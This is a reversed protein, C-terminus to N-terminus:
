LAEKLYGENLYDQVSTAGHRKSLKKRDLGLVLSIHAFEPAQWGLAEYIMLQRLTNPLHEEARIVNSIRMLYDDVVVAYNYVPVGNSRLIVFDGVMGDKFTIEGRVRDTFTYDKRPAKMRISFAEGGGARQESEENSINTCTGDYQPPVGKAKAAEAKRDLEEETCFCRYAHATKLLLLAIPKYIDERESQRYPGYNGGENPGENPPLDLAMLDNIVMKEFEPTSREQDTDEIRLVMTGNTSKAYIYNFLYSRAGGVHLSGTPSPAFRVRVRGPIPGGQINNVDFKM